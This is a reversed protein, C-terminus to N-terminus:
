RANSVTPKVLQVIQGIIRSHCIVLGKPVLNIAHGLPQADLVVRAALPSCAANGMPPPQCDNMLARARNPRSVKVSQGGSGGLM